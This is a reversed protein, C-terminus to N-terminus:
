RSRTAEAVPPVFLVTGPLVRLPDDLKNTEALARWLSADEYEAYAISALTDGALVRHSRQATLGGSTPNQKPPETPMEELSVTCVARIPAGDSRFLTYKASVSKVVAVISVTSGWGFVVWPPSPKNSSRTKDTPALCKFLAEVDKAVNGSASTSQDLFLEVDLSRPESGMFEPLGAKKNGKGAKREWKATKKITYEKPNFQFTIRDQGIPPPKTAPSPPEVVALYAKELKGGAAAM